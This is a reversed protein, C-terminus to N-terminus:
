LSRVFSSGSRVHQILTPLARSWRACTAPGTDACLQNVKRFLHSFLTRPARSAKPEEEKEADPNSESARGEGIAPLSFDRELEV